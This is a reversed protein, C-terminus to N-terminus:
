PKGYNRNRDQAVIRLFEKEDIIINTDFGARKLFDVFDEDITLFLANETKAVAYMICDFIDPHGKRKLQIALM